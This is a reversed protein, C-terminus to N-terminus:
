TLPWASLEGMKSHNHIYSTSTKYSHSPDRYSSDIANASSHRCLLSLCLPLSNKPLHLLLWAGRRGGGPTSVKEGHSLSLSINGMWNGTQSTFGRLRGSHWLLRFPTKTGRIPFTKRMVRRPRWKLIWNLTALNSSILRHFLHVTTQHLTLAMSNCRKWFVLVANHQSFLGLDSVQSFFVSLRCKIESKKRILSCFSRWYRYWFMLFNFIEGENIM